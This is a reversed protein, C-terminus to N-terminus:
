QVLQLSYVRRKTRSGVVLICDLRVSPRSLSSRMAGHKVCTSFDSMTTLYLSHSKHTSSQTISVSRLKGQQDCCFHKSDTGIPIDTPLHNRYRRPAVAAFTEDKHFSWLRVAYMADVVVATKLNHQPLNAVDSVGTEERMVKFGSQCKNM